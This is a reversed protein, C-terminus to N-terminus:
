GITATRANLDIQVSGGEFRRTWVGPRPTSPPELPRGLAKARDYVPYWAEADGHGPAKAAHEPSQILLLALGFTARVEDDGDPVAAVYVTGADRAVGALRFAEDVYRQPQPAGDPWYAVLEDFVYTFYQFQDEEWGGSELNRQAMAGSLNAMVDYGREQLGPGVIANVQEMWENWEGASSTPVGAQVEPAFSNDDDLFVGDVPYGGKASEALKAEMRELAFRGYGSSDNPEVFRLWPEQHDPIGSAWGKAEAEATTIASNYHGEADPAATRSINQYILIKCAPNAARIAAIEDRRWFGQLVIVDDRRASVDFGAGGSATQYRVFSITARAPGDTRSPGDPESSFLGLAAATALAVLLTTAVLL